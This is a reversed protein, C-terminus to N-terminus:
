YSATTTFSMFKCRFGVFANLAKKVKEAKGAVKQNGATAPTVELLAKTLAAQAGPAQMSRVLEVMEHGNRTSLFHAIEAITPDRVIAM